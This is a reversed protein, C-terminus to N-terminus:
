HGFPGDLSFGSDAWKTYVGVSSDATEVRLPLELYENKLRYLYSSLVEVNKKVIDYKKTIDNHINETDVIKEEIVDTYKKILELKLNKTIVNEQAKRINEQVIENKNYLDIYLSSFLRILTKPSIDNCIRFIMIKEDEKLNDFDINEFIRDMNSENGTLYVKKYFHVFDELSLGTGKYNLCLQKIIDLPLTAFKNDYNKILTELNSEFYKLFLIKEKDKCSSFSEIINKPDRVCNERSKIEKVFKNVEYYESLSLLDDYNYFTLRFSNGQLANLFNLFVENSFSDDIAIGEPFENMLSDFKKSLKRVRDINDIRYEIGNYRVRYYSTM